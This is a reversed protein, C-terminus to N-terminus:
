KIDLCVALISYELIQIWNPLHLATTASSIVLVFVCERERKRERERDTHAHTITMKHAHIYIYTANWHENNNKIIRSKLDGDMRREEGGEKGGSAGNPQVPIM